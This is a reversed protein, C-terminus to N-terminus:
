INIIFLITTIPTITIRHTIPSRITDDNDYEHYSIQGQAIIKRNLKKKRPMKMVLRQISVSNLSHFSEESKM